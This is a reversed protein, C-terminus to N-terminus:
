LAAFVDSVKIEMEHAILIGNRAVLQPRGGAEYMWCEQRDPDALWCVPVGWAHYEECKSLVEGFRDDPSLIEICLAIPRTPYPRQLESLRQVAVDPILYRTENLRLTQEPVGRYGLNLAKILECFRFELMGHNYTPMTKRRLVGDLYECNPEYDTRLYEEVSILGTTSAM